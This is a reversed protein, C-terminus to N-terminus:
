CKLFEFIVEIPLKYLHFHDKSSHGLAQLKATCTLRKLERGWSLATHLDHFSIRFVHRTKVDGSEERRYLPCCFHLVSHLMAALRSSFCLQVNWWRKEFRDQLLLCKPRPKPFRQVELDREEQQGDQRGTIKAQSQEVVEGSSSLRACAICGHSIERLKSTYIKICISGVTNESQELNQPMKPLYNSSIAELADRSFWLFNGRKWTLHTFCSNVPRM